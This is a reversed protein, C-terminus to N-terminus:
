GQWFTRDPLRFLTAEHIHDPGIDESGELDAITRAVKLIKHFSRVSLRLGQLTEWLGDGEPLRCYQGVAGPTLRANFDIGSGAYRRKQVAHARRIREKITASSEEEKRSIIEMFEPEATEACIDIRDLLPRSIRNLYQRLERVGCTCKHMNPYYGCRCPNMAAVMMFDAPYQCSGQVRAITVSQDELPQRLTELSNKSFETFEDLFLVGKDALSVEGPGPIRGGGALAQPTATHHPARFPRQSMLCEAEPMLGAVSYIRSIELLEEVSVEPLITPIRRSLMSKGSGPPGILLLNHFGAAAVECARKALAQGSVEAFDVDWKKEGSVIEGMDLPPYEMGEDRSNLYAVAQGLTGVGVITIGEVLRGEKVNAMPVMCRLFGKERARLVMPLVGKAPNIQGNLGMEGVVLMEGGQIRRVIGMGMLVAIAIPLDFGGGEKRVDAPALNVTVRKPPIPYGSNKLATRVRERAERVQSNLDGVMEFVPLGNSVDAEVQIMRGDIGHLAASDVVGIM